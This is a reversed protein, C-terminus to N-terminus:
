FMKQKRKIDPFLQILRKVYPILTQLASVDRCRITDNEIEFDKLMKEAEEQAQSDEMACFLEKPKFFEPWQRLWVYCQIFQQEKESFISFSNVREDYFKTQYRIPTYNLYHFTVDETEPHYNNLQKAWKFFRKYETGGLIGASNPWDVVVHVKLEGQKDECVKGTKPGLAEVIKDIRHTEINYMPTNKELRGMQSLDTFIRFVTGLHKNCTNIRNPASLYSTIDLQELVIYRGVLRVDFKDMMQLLMDKCGPSDFVLTHPHYCDQEDNNQLFLNGERKLYETTFTTLQALWGGLSHGTFFLQFSVGYELKVERLVEVVKQAFTSASGMQPVHRKFLVGFLDTWLAGLKSPKTGRHAIV